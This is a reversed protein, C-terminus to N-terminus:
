AIRCAKIDDSSAQFVAGDTAQLRYSVQGVRGKVIDARLVDYIGDGHAVRHGYWRIDLKKGDHMKHRM